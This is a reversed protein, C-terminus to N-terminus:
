RTRRSTTIDWLLHDRPRGGIELYDRSLGIRDFGNRELVRQSAVNDVLTAAEVRLLGLPGFATDLALRVADTAIGRRRHPFAVWYGLSANQFPGRSVNSLGVEGVMESGRVIVFRYTRDAERDIAAERQRALLSRHTWWAPPRRPLMPELHDREGILLDAFAIGDVDPLPVLATRTM